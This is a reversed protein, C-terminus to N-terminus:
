IIKYKVSDNLDYPVKKLKLYDQIRTELKGEAVNHLIKIWTFRLEGVMVWFEIRYSKM